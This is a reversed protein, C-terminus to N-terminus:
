LKDMNSVLKKGKAEEVISLTPKIHMSMPNNNVNPGNSTFTIAKSEILEQVKYKLAKCNEVSYGPEGYHFEYRANLDYGFPHVAQPPGVERLQVLSGHLLYPLLRSYPMLVHDFRKESM